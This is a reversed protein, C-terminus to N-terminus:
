VTAGVRRYRLFVEDDIVTCQVVSYRQLHQRDLPEGGAYTPVDSGLKVKPALTLFLEDVLDERLLQGNVESGGLVVLREVGYEARLRTLLGNMDSANVSEFGEVEARPGTSGILARGSRLFQSDVPVNGSHSLVVRVDTRPNWSSPSARLTQAGVMVADAQRLLRRMLQHDLKSGLDLVSEDREGSLIKGDITSVMDIAVFPRGDRGPPFCLDHYLTERVMAERLVGYPQEAYRKDGIFFTPLNFVGQRYAPADFKVIRDDYRDEAIASLMQEVSDVFPAAIARLVDPENINMGHDWFAGYLARVLGNPDGTLKAHEVAQHARFTRMKHPRSARPPAIGDAALLLEFRDPTHPRNPPHFQPVAEPWDLDRPYLEFGRWEIRVDFERELRRAQHLGVWCWRCNFDHAVPITLAM